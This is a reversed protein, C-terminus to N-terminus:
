PPTFRGHLYHLRTPSELDVRDIWMLHLDGHPDITVAPSGQYGAGSAGPVVLDASWGEGFDWSLLVDGSEAADGWGERTDDWAAAFGSKGGALAPHWQPVAAGLEDQVIGNPGFTAGADRSVAGWVAYGSAPNRKDLWIARVVGDHDSALVVRMVGSGLGSTGDTSVPANHENLQREKAFEPWSESWTHFLRTHGARRDEWAVVLRGDGAWAAAPYGQFAHGGIPAVKEPGAALVVGRQDVNLLAAEIL